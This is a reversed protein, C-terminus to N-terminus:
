EDGQSATNRKGLFVRITGRNLKLAKALQVENMTGHANVALVAERLEERVKNGEARLENWRAALEEALALDNGLSM